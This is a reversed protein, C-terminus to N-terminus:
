TGLETEATLQAGARAGAGRGFGGSRRAKAPEDNRAALQAGRTQGAGKRDSADARQALDYRKECRGRARDLPCILGARLGSRASLSVQVTDRAM